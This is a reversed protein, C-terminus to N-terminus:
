IKKKQALNILFECGDNNISLQRKRLDSNIKLKKNDLNVHIFYANKNISRGYGLRFDCSIGCLIVFDCKSLSISRKHRFYLNHKIGLLGRSMGSLYVPISLENIASVLDNVLLPHLMSQSGIILLPSSCNLLKNLILNYPINVNSRQKQLTIYKYKDEMKINNLDKFGDKYVNYVHYKLYLSAIDIKPIKDWFSSSSSNTKSSSSSSSGSSSSSMEIESKPWIIELPTEIFVPGPIGHNALYFAQRLTPIIDKVRKLTFCKKVHPKMLAFQDIDQLSGRGKLLMSTAGGFILCPSEAMQANKVATITNTLGPGATVMAVGPKGTLRGVCDAAFVTTVEDRVDIVKIGLKNCGVLMPSIHGGTLTFISKVGESLLVKAVLYGGYENQELTESKNSAQACDINQLSKNDDNHNIHSLIHNLRKM